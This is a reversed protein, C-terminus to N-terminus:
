EESETIIQNSGGPVIKQDPSVYQVNNFESKSIEKRYVPSKFVMGVFNVADAQRKESEELKIELIKKDLEQQDIKLQDERNYLNEQAILQKKMEAKESQLENILKASNEYDKQIKEVLEANKKGEALLKQLTEGVQAPLNENISTQIAKELEQTM